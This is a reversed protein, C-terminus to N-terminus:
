RSLKKEQHRDKCSKQFRSRARSSHLSRVSPSVSGFQVSSCGHVVESRVRVTVIRAVPSIPHTAVVQEPFKGKEKPTTAASALLQIQPTMQRQKSTTKQSARSSAHDARSSRSKSPPSSATSSNPRNKALRRKAAPQKGSITPNPTIQRPTNDWFQSQTAIFGGSCIAPMNSPWQM